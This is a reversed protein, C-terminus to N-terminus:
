VSVVPVRAGNSVEDVCGRLHPRRAVVGHRGMVIADIDHDRAYSLIVDCPNGRYVSTTGEVGRARMRGLVDELLLEADREVREVHLEESSFGTTTGHVADELVYLVHVVADHEAALELAHDVGRQAGKSDDVPVLLSEYM